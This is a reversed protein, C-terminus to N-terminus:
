LDVFGFDAFVAYIFVGRHSCLGLVGGAVNSCHLTDSGIEFHRNVTVLVTVNCERSCLYRLADRAVSM